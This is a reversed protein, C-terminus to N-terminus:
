YEIFGDERWRREGRGCWPTSCCMPSGCLYVSMYFCQSMTEWQSALGPGWSALGDKEPETLQEGMEKM